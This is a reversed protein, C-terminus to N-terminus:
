PLWTSVDLKQDKIRVKLMNSLLQSLFWACFWFCSWWQFTLTQYLYNRNFRRESRFSRFVITFTGVNLPFSTISYLKRNASFLLNQFTLLFDLHCWLLVCTDELFKLFFCNVLIADFRRSTATECYSTMVHCITTIPIKYLTDLIEIPWIYTLVQCVNNRNTPIYTLVQM